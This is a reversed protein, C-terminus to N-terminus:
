FKCTTSPTRCIQSSAPPAPPGAQGLVQLHHQPGAQGLVQLHHQPDLTDRLQCTTSPDPTTPDSPGGCGPQPLVSAKGVDEPWAVTKHGGKREEEKFVEPM